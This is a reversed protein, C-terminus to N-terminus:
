QEGKAVAVMARLKAVNARVDAAFASVLSEVADLDVLDGDQDQVRGDLFVSTESWDIAVINELEM